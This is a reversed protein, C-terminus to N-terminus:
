VHNVYLVYKGTVIMEQFITFLDLCFLQVCIDHTHLFHFWNLMKLDNKKWQIHCPHTYINNANCLLTDNNNNNNGVDFMILYTFRLYFILICPSSFFVTISFSPPNDGKTHAYYVSNLQISYFHSFALIDDAHYKCKINGNKKTNLSCVTYYVNYM